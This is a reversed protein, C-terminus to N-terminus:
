GQTLLFRTETTPSRELEAWDQTDIGTLALVKAACLFVKFCINKKELPFITRSSFENRGNIEPQRRMRTSVSNLILKCVKM